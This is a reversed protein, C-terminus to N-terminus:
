KKDFKKNLVEIKYKVEKIQKKTIRKGLYTQPLRSAKSDSYIRELIRLYDQWQLLENLIIRKTQEM